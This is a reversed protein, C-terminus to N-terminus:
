VVILWRNCLLIVIGLLFVEATLLFTTALLFINEHHLRSAAIHRNYLPCLLCGKSHMVAHTISNCIALFLIIYPLATNGISLWWLDTDIEHGAAKYSMCASAYASVSAANDNKDLTTEDYCIVSMIGYLVVSCTLLALVAVCVALIIDNRLQLTNHLHMSKNDATTNTKHPIM